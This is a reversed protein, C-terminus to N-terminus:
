YLLDTYDEICQISGYKVCRFLEKFTTDNCIHISRRLHYIREEPSLSEWYNAAEELEM